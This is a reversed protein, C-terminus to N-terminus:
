EEDEEDDDEDDIYNEWIEPYEFINEIEDEAIEEAEWESKSELNGYVNFRIYEDNWSDIHGFFTARCVEMKDQFYLDFFEEDFNQLAEDADGHEFCYENFMAVKASIEQEKFLETFKELTM